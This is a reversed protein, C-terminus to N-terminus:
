STRSWSRELGHVLAVMAANLPTRVGHRAGEAVVAGNITDVETLRRGEVDQLMSAKSAGANALTQRLQEVRMEVDIGLGLAVGVAITERALGEVAPWPASGVLEGATLGTLAAVPLASTNVILKDWIVPLIPDALETPVGAAELMGAVRDARARAASTSTFPGIITRGRATHRVSGPTPMSASQYTVGAVIRDDGWRSALVSANGWGNQLTVVTTEPGVLSGAREAASATHMGKVFCFLVDAPRRGTGDVAASVEAVWAEGGGAFTEDVTLGKASVNAVLTASADVVTMPHGARALSAAWLGGMAGGGLVAIREKGV